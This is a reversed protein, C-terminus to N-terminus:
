ATQKPNDLKPMPKLDDPRDFPLRGNKAERFRTIMEEIKATRDKEDLESLKEIERYIKPNATIAVFSIDAYKDKVTQALSDKYAIYDSKKHMNEMRVAIVCSDGYVITKADKVRNDAKALESIEASADAAGAYVPLAIATILLMISLIFWKKM